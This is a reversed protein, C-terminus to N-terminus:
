GGVVHRMLFVTTAAAFMFTLTAFLSRPSLRALGCVGHGSTCGNGVVTGVGVLFGAVMLLRPDESIVVNLPTQSAALFAIPALIVGVVFLFRWTKTDSGGAGFSPILGAVIGSVGMVRGNALMLGAAALGILGGGILARVIDSALDVM